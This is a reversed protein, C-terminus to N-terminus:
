EVRILKCTYYKPIPQTNKFIYTSSCLLFRYKKIVKSDCTAINLRISGGRSILIKWKFKLSNKKPNMLADNWPTLNCFYKTQIQDYLIHHITSM